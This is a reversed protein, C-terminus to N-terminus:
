NDLQYCECALFMMWYIRGLSQIGYWSQTQNNGGGGGGYGGGGNGYGGGNNYGGGGGGGQKSGSQFQPLPLGTFTFRCLASKFHNWKKENNRQHQLLLVFQLLRLARLALWDITGWFWRSNCRCIVLAWFCYIQQDMISLHHVKKKNQLCCRVMFQLVKVTRHKLYSHQPLGGPISCRCIVLRM